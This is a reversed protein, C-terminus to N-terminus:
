CLYGLYRFSEAMQMGKEGFKQEIEANTGQKKNVIYKLLLTYLSDDENYDIKAHMGLLSKISNIFRKYPKKDEKSLISIDKKEFIDVGIEGYLKRVIQVDKKTLLNIEDRLSMQYNNAHIKM